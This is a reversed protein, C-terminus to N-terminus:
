SQIAVVVGDQIYLYGGKYIWQERTGNSTTTRNIRIPKGWSSELVQHQTMGIHVGESKRQAEIQIDTKPTISELTRVVGENDRVELDGSPAIKYHWSKRPQVDERYSHSSLKVLRTRIEEGPTLARCERLVSYYQSAHQEITNKCKVIDDKWIGLVRAASIKAPENGTQAHVLVSHSITLAALLVTLPNITKM